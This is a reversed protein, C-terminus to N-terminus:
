FGADREVIRGLASWDIEEGDRAITALLHDRVVGLVPMPVRADNAAEAVLNMDKLGLPATFGAPHFKEQALIDGYVHYIPADFYSGTLVELLKDKPIGGRRGLTMAEALGEIVSGILFNGCLKMLNAQSPHDGILFTRQGIADFLPQCQAVADPRGAAVVFLQAAAAAHPRGFVPASVLVGGAEAHARTLREAFPIGITSLSVHIPRANSALIGNDGFTVAEVAADDALMTLVIEGAAADVPREALRAGAAVLPAAKDASRNWVTVDHGAEILNRAIAAGMQGLGIFGIKM